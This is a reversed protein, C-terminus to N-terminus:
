WPARFFVLVPADVDLVKAEFNDDTVVPACSSADM